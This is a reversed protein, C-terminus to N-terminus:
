AVTLEIWSLSPEDWRYQNGDQPYPIPPEFSCLLENFVWSPFHNDWEVIVENQKITKEEETMQRVHHVDNYLDGILEYTVGEYVEYVDIVPREVRVFSVWNDPIVGFAQLLNEEFAPHNKPKGNETEIYLNM